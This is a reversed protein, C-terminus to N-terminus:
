PKRIIEPLVSCFNILESLTAYNQFRLKSIVGLYKGQNSKQLAENEYGLRSSHPTEVYRTETQEFDFNNKWKDKKRHTYKRRFPGKRKTYLYICGLVILFLIFLVGVISGIVAPINSEDSHPHLKTSKKKVTRRPTTTTGNSTAM